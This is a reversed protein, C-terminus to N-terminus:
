APMVRFSSDIRGTWGGLSLNRRASFASMCCPDNFVALPFDACAAALALACFSFDRKRFVNGLGPPRGEALTMGSFDQDAIAKRDIALFVAWCNRTRVSECEFDFPQSFIPSVFENRRDTLLGAVIINCPAAGLFILPGGFAQAM